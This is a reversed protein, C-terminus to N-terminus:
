TLFGLRIQDNYKQLFDFMFLLWAAAVYPHTFM